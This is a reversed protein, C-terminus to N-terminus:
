TTGGPKSAECSECDCPILCKMQDLCDKVTMEHICHTESFTNIWGHAMYIWYGNGDGREDLIEDVRPDALLKALTKPLSM